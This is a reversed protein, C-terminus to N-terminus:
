TQELEKELLPLTRTSFDEHLRRHTELGQYSISEMYAEEEAFHKIAHDKFYKIGEQCVWAGKEQQGSFQFLKNIIKFLKKHEKDFRDIGINYRDEWVLYNGM